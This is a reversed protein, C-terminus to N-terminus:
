CGAANSAGGPGIFLADVGDIAAIVEVADLATRSEIQAIVGIRDNGPEPFTADSAV